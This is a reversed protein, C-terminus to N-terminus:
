FYDIANRPWDAQRVKPLPTQRPPVFSWHTPWSAGEDIWRRFLEIQAPTLRKGTKPPPMRTSPDDSGIRAVLDSEASKGPVIAFGDDRLEALAAGKTDLRLKAKRQKEDPGHCAFCNESLIPRIQRNFDIAPVKPTDATAQGIPLGSFLFIALLSRVRLSPTM